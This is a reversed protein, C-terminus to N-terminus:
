VRGAVFVSKLCATRGSIVQDSDLVLVALVFLDRRSM